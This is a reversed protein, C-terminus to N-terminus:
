KKLLITDIKPRRDVISDKIYSTWLYVRYFTDRMTTDFVLIEKTKVVSDKSMICREQIKGNLFFYEENAEKRKIIKTSDFTVPLATEKKGLSKCDRKRPPSFAVGLGGCCGYPETYDIRIDFCDVITDKIHNIKKPHLCICGACAMDVLILMLLLKNMM